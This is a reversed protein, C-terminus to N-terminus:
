HPWATRRCCSITSYISSSPRLEPATNCRRTSAMPSRRARRQAAPPANAIMRGINPSSSLSRSPCILCRVPAIALARKRTWASAACPVPRPYHNVVENPDTVQRLTEGKHGKQGGPKKGSRERLSSVRAPKRLGDSSPPRGSNSSNLGLRRELEAIHARLAGVLTILEERSLEAASEANM